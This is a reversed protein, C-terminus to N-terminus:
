FKSLFNKPVYPEDLPLSNEPSINRLIFSNSELCSNIQDKSILYRIGKDTIKLVYNEYAIYENELMENILQDLIGGSLGLLSSLEGFDIHCCDKFYTLFLTKQYETM